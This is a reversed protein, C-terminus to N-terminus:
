SNVLRSLLLVIGDYQNLLQQDVLSASVDGQLFTTYEDETIGGLQQLDSDPDCNNTRMISTALMFSFILQHKAFLALSATRYSSWTLRDIMRKMHTKLDSSTM